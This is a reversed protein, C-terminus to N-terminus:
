YAECGAMRRKEGERDHATRSTAGESLTFLLGRWCGLQKDKGTVKADAYGPCRRRAYRPASFFRGARDNRRRGGGGRGGQPQHYLNRPTHPPRMDPLHSSRKWPSVMILASSGHVTRM